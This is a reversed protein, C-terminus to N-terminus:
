DLVSTPTTLWHPHDALRGLVPEGPRGQAPATSVIVSGTVLVSLAVAALAARLVADRSWGALLRLMLAM